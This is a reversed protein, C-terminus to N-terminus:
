QYLLYKTRANRFIALDKDWSDWIERLPRGAELAARLEPGAALRDFSQPRFQFEGPHV